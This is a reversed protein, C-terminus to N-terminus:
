RSVRQDRLPFIVVSVHSPGSLLGVGAQRDRTISAGAEIQPTYTSRVLSLAARAEQVRATAQVLDYNAAVARHILSDVETDHFSQWWQDVDVGVGPKTGPTPSTTWQAPTSVPPSLLEPGRRVCNLLLM